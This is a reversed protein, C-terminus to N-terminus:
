FLPPQLEPSITRSYLPKVVGHSQKLKIFVPVVTNFLSIPTAVVSMCACKVMKCDSYSTMDACHAVKNDTSILKVSLPMAPAISNSGNFSMMTTNGVPVFLVNLVFLLFLVRMSDFFGM